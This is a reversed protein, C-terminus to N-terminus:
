KSLIEEAKHFAKREDPDLDEGSSLGMSDLRWRIAEVLQVLIARCDCEHKISVDQVTLVVPGSRITSKNM